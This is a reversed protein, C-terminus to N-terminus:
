NFTNIIKNILIAVIPKKHKFVVVNTATKLENIKKRIESSILYSALIEDFALRRYFNSKFNGINKPNHLKKISDNWSENGFKKVKSGM